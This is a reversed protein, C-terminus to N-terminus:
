ARSTLRFRLPSVSVHSGNLFAWSHRSQSLTKAPAFHGAQALLLKTGKLRQIWGSSLPAGGTWVSGEIARAATCGGAEGRDM